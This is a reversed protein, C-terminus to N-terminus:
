KLKKFRDLPSAAGSSNQMLVPVKVPEQHEIRINILGNGGASQRRNTCSSQDLMLNAQQHVKNNSGSTPRRIVKKRKTATTTPQAVGPRMTEKRQRMINSLQNISQQLPDGAGDEDM